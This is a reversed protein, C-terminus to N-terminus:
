NAKGALKSQEALQIKRQTQDVLKKFSLEEDGPAVVPGCEPRCTHSFRESNKFLNVSATQTPEVHVVRNVIVDGVEDVAIVNTTGVMRGTVFIHTSDHAIVDAIMPNGILISSAKRELKISVAQDQSLDIYDQLKEENKFAIPQRTDNAFANPAVVIMAAGFLANTLLRISKSNKRM